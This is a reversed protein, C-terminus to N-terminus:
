PWSGNGNSKNNSSRGSTLALRRRRLHKWILEANLEIQLQFPSSSKPNPETIPAKYLVRGLAFSHWNIDSSSPM